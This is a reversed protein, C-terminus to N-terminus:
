VAELIDENWHFSPLPLGGGFIAPIRGRVWLPYAVEDSLYSITNARDNFIRTLNEVYKHLPFISYDRNNGTYGIGSRVLDGVDGSVPIFIFKNGRVPQELIEEFWGNIIRVSM